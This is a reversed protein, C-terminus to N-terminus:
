PEEEFMQHKAEESFDLKKRIWLSIFVLFTSGTLAFLFAYHLVFGYIGRGDIM